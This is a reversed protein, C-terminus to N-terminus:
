YRSWGYGESKFTKVDKGTNFRLFYETGRDTLLEFFETVQNTSIKEIAEKLLSMPLQDLTINRSLAILEGLHSYFAELAYGDVTFFAKYYNGTIKWQVDTPNKFERNLEKVILQPVPNSDNAFIASFSLLFAATLILINKKM